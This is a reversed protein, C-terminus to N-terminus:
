LVVEEANEIDKAAAPSLRVIFAHGRVTVVVEAAGAKKAASIVRTIESRKPLEHRTM